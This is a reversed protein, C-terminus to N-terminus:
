KITYIFKPQNKHDLTKRNKCGLRTLKHIKIM